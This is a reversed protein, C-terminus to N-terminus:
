FTFGAGAYFRHTNIRDHSHPSVQWDQLYDTKIFIGSYRYGADVTFHRALNVAVGGGVSAMPRTEERFTKKILENATIEKTLDVGGILFKAKPSMHAIGGSASVYPRVAGSIPLLYRLGGTVYNTPMKVSSVSPMGLETLLGQDVLQLDENTFNALVDQVRGVEGTIQLDKTINFGGAGGFFPANKETSNMGGLGIVYGRQDDQSQALVPLTVLALFAL